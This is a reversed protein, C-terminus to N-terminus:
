GGDLREACAAQVVELTIGQMCRAEACQNAAPGFSRSCRQIWAAQRRFTNTQNRCAIDISLATFPSDRWYEGAGSILSSGPGFLAVTPVGAIRALHTVGTDPCVMLRAKALLQALQPLDLQGGFSRYRGQPDAQRVLELEKAGASWVPTIGQAVLWDALALWREAPWYKLPTSAGLHLVAYPEVPADFPAAAPLPWDATRYPAPAPGDILEACFDGFAAPSQPFPRAEDVLWNKWAPKDDAFAIVWKAGLARALPSHRNEAPIIVLDFPAAAQLSAIEGLRPNWILTQIGFPRNAYLPAFAPACALYREAQPYRAALKALLPTLMLTDGLLLHHLVLIRQPQAPRSRRWNRPALLQRALGRLIFLRTGLRSM